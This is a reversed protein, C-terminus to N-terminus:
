FMVRFTNSKLLCKLFDFGYSFFFINALNVACIYRHPYWYMTCHGVPLLLYDILFELRSILDSSLRLSHLCERSIEQKCKAILVKFQSYNKLGVLVWFLTVLLIHCFVLEHLDSPVHSERLESVWLDRGYTTYSYHLFFSLGKPVDLAWSEVSGLQSLSTLGAVCIFKTWTHEWPIISGFLV